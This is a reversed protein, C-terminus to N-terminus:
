RACRFGTVYMGLQRTFAPPLSATSGVRLAATEGDLWSGGKTVPVGGEAVVWEAVNGSLDCLGLASNGAPFTCGPALGKFGDVPWDTEAAVTSYGPFGDGEKQGFNGRLPSGGRPPEDGWPFAQASDGRSARVWEAEFPLRLGVWRCYAEAAVFNACPVPLADHEPGALLQSCFSNAFDIPKCGGAKVCASYQGVSVETRALEFSAVQVRRPARAGLPADDGLDGVWAAGEPVRCLVAGDGANSKECASSLDRAPGAWLDRRALLARQARHDLEADSIGLYILFSLAPAPTGGQAEIATTLEMVREPRIAHIFSYFPVVRVGNLRLSKVLELAPRSPAEDWVPFGLFVTKVGSLSLEPLVQALLPPAAEAGPMPPDHFAIVRAGLMQGFERAIRETRGSWSHVLILTTPDPTANTSREAREGPTAPVREECRCSGLAAALLVGLALARMM